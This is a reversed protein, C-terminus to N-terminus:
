EKNELKNLAEVVNSSTQVAETETMALCAVEYPGVEHDIVRFKKKLKKGQLSALSRLVNFKINERPVPFSKGIPVEEWPYKRQVVRTGAKAKDSSDFFEFETM